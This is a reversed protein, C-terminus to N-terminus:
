APEFGAAMHRTRTDLECGRGPLETASSTPKAAATRACRIVGAIENSLVVITTQM